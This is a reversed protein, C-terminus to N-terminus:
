VALALWGWLCLCFRKCCASRASIVQTAFVLLLMTPGLSESSPQPHRRRYRGLVPIKCGMDPEDPRSEGHEGPVPGSDRLVRQPAGPRISEPSSVISATHPTIPTPSASGLM